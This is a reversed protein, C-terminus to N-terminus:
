VAVEVERVKADQALEEAANLYKRIAIAINDLAEHETAGQALLRAFPPRFRQPRRRIPSARSQIENFVGRWSIPKKRRLFDRVIRTELM